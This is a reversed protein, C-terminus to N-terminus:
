GGAQHEAALAAAMEVLADIHGVPPSTHWVAFLELDALHAGCSIEVLAGSTLEYQAISRPLVAVGLGEVAMKVITAVSASTHILPREGVGQFLDRLNKFPRTKRLFTIVPHKAIECLSSIGPLELSPSALFALQETNLRHSLLEDDAVPGVMFALDIKQALLQVKLNASIDVDIALALRPYATHMRRLFRPLWTHVITEACGLHLTGSLETPDGTKSIMEQHLDLLRKAYDLVTRGAETLGFQKRDFLDGKGLCEEIRKIRHTLAPQSTGLIDAARHYNRQQLVSVLAELSRLDVRPDIM